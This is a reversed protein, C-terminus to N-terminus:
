LIYNLSGSIYITTLRLGDFQFCVRVFGTIYALLILIYIFTAFVYRLCCDLRVFM